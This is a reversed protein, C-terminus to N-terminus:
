LVKMQRMWECTAWPTQSKEAVLTIKLDQSTEHLHFHQSRHHHIRSARGTVFKVKKPDLLELTCDESLM